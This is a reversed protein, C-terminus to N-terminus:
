PNWRYTREAVGAVDRIVLEITMTGTDILPSGDPTTAPFALTGERHHDGKPADWSVPLVEVGDARLFALGSLDIDDLNVSHTDLAVRFVPGAAMGEWTATVTVRGGEVAQTSSGAGPTADSEQGNRRDFTFLAILLLGLLVLVGAIGRFLWSNWVMRQTPDSEPGTMCQEESVTRVM